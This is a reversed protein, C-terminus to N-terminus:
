VEENEVRNTLMIKEMRRRCPMEYGEIYKRGIERLTWTGADYFAISWIYYKVAEEKCKLGNHQLFSNEEQQTGGTGHFDQM